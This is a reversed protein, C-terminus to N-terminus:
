VEEALRKRLRGLIEPTGQVTVLRTEGYEESVVRVDKRADALVGQAKYPVEFSETVLMRDFFSVVRDRLREGDEGSHACLQIGHPLESALAAREAADLRDIKNLLLWAPTESAGIEAVVERTVRIHERFDPDSADVVHLLLWAEHAEDLTSRFSAVLAHPLRRIFGVTDALLIPPTSGPSLPRVTTELTAFLKDEVLVESGTLRRMVASKGANTYGILAVRFTEARRRRKTAAGTHARGLERRAAAIRDRLRQKALEVNTHGRSARGGGGERDGLAHDDRVRPLEYQLRALEVELRAERTRARREFVRLIVAARDLVEVGTAIELNRQQGPSLEDDVVVLDAGAFAGPSTSRRPPAPGRPVEGPGGTLAAIERLKGEGLYTSASRSPRKQTVTAAAAIGLGHLLQTLEAISRELERESVEPVQVAVVIAKRGQVSPHEHEPHRSVSM